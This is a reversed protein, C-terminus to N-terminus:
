KSCTWHRPDTLSVHKVSPITQAGALGRTAQALPLAPQQLARTGRAAAHPARLEMM